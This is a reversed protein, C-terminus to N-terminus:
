DYGDGRNDEEDQGTYYEGEPLEDDERSKGNVRTKVDEEPKEDDAPKRDVMPKREEPPPRSSQYDPPYGSATEPYPPQAQVPYPPMQQQPYPSQQYAPYPQQQYPPYPPPYGPPMQQLYPDYPPPGYPPPGYQPPYGPYPGGAQQYPRFDQSGGKEGSGGEDHAEEERQVGPINLNMAAGLLGTGIAFWIIAMVAFMLSSEYDGQEIVKVEIDATIEEDGENDLAFVWKEGDGEGSFRDKRVGDSAHIPESEVGDKWKEYETVNFIYVSVASGRTVTVEMEVDTEDGALMRLSAYNEGGITFEDETSETQGEMYLVVYISFLLGLVIFLVGSVAVVSVKVQPM